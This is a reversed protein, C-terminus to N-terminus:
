TSSLRSRCISRGRTRYSTTSTWPSTPLSNTLAPDFGRHRFVGVNDHWPGFPSIWQEVVALGAAEAWGAMADPQFRYCDVPYRHVPGTSPVIIVMVGDPSLVRSMENLTRWFQPNHEFTQGSLVVDFSRLDSSCM